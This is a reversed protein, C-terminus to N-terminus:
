TMDCSCMTFPYHSKKPLLGDLYTIMRDLKTAILVRTLSTYHNENTVHGQLVVYDFHKIVRHNPARKVYTVMRGIKTTM